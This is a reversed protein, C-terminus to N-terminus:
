EALGEAYVRDALNNKIAWLASKEEETLSIGKKRGMVWLAIKKASKTEEATTETGYYDFCANIIINQKPSKNNPLHRM